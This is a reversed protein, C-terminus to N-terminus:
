ASYLNSIFISMLYRVIGPLIREWKIDVFKDRDKRQHEHARGMVHFLQHIVNFVMNVDDLTDDIMVIQTKAASRGIIESCNRCFM